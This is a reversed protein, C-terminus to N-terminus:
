GIIGMLVPAMGPVSKTKFTFVSTDSTDGNNNWCTGYYEYTKGPKLGTATWYNYGGADGQDGLSIWTSSGQLRYQVRMAASTGHGYGNIEMGLRASTPKITDAPLDVIGPALALRPLSWGIQAFTMENVPANVYNGINISANGNADHGIWQGYANMLFQGSSITTSPNNTNVQGGNIYLRGDWSGTQSYAGSDSYVYNRLEVYTRNNGVEQATIIYNLRTNWNSFNSGNSFDRTWDAM